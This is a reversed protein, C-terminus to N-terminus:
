SLSLLQDFRYRPLIARVVIFWFCMFVTKSALILSGPIFSLFRFPPLWGGLFIISFVSSMALIGCYEGIFFFAFLIGSYEVHYGAVLESEAESLDFPARNTEALSVIFFVVALPFFPFILWIGSQDQIAVIDALRLTGTVMYITLIVTSFVLEYSLMQAMARVSGMLAYRSNSAWGAIIISYVNLSSVTFFLLLSYDSEMFVTQYSFPIIAFLTFSLTFMAIPAGLFLYHNARGPITIDTLLLSIGDCLPQLVGWFGAMNPGLRRQMSAMVKREALTFYAVTFLMPMIVALSQIVILWFERFVSVGSPAPDAIVVTYYFTTYFLLRMM